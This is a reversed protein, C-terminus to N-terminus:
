VPQNKKSLRPLVGKPWCHFKYPCMSCAQRDDARDFKLSQIQHYVDKLLLRLSDKEEQNPQFKFLYPKQQRNGIFWLFFTLRKNKFLPDNEVLLAYFTLQRHYDQNPDSLAKITPRRGTKYDILIIKDKGASDVRDIKGSLPVNDSTFIHEKSYDVEVAVPRSENLQKVLQNDYFRQLLILGENLIRGHETKTLIENDLYAQYATKVVGFGVNSKSKLNIAWEELAKHIASGMILSATKIKPLKYLHTLLFKYPCKLYLNLSTPSLKIKKVAEQWYDPNIAPMEAPKLLSVLLKQLKDLNDQHSVSDIYQNPLKTIFSSITKPKVVGDYWVHKPVTIYIQKKARTLAVYFLREEEYAKEKKQDVIDAELLQPLKIKSSIRKGSWKGEIFQPIFVYDFEQGKAKHATTLKVAESNSFLPEAELKVKYDELLQLNAVLDNTSTVLRDRYWTKVQNFFAYIFMIQHKDQKNALLYTIFGTKEMLTQLLLPLPQQGATKKLEEFVDFVQWISRYQPHASRNFYMKFVSTKLRYGDRFLQGVLAPSLKFFPLNLCTFLDNEAQQNGWNHLTKVLTMLFNVGSQAMVDIQGDVVYPIKDKNFFPTYIDADKNERYILAIQSAKVKHQLLEKIIQSIFWAEQTLSAFHHVQIKQHKLKSKKAPRITKNIALLSDLSRRQDAIFAESTSIIEPQSRYNIELNITKTKTFLKKFFIFNYRSAGQFRFISQDNDGVAFVNASDGWFSSLLSILKNQASNTDQYEDVLLYLVKEQVQLALEEDEAIRNVAQNIMDEFDYLGKDRMISQYLRYFKVVEELKLKQKDTLHTDKKINTKLQQPSLSERKLQSLTQILPQVYFTIDGFPKLWFFKNDNLIEEFLRVKELTSIPRGARIEPFKDPHQKIIRGAFAHFTLINVQYAEAGIIQSLRSMMNDAAAETYTLATIAYAPTDTKALINAIRLTLVQTKGTGPGALVLVPGEITDVALKQAPNLQQYLKKFM